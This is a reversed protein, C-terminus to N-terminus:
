TPCSFQVSPCLNLNPRQTSLLEEHILPKAKAKQRFVQRRSLGLVQAAEGTNMAGEITESIVEYRQVERQSILYRKQEM